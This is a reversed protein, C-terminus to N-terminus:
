ASEALGFDEEYGVAARCLGAHLDLMRERWARVPDDGQPLLPYASTCRPWMFTGMVIYDAYTPAEGSLFPQAKLTARLPTLIAEWAPREGARNDRIEEITKGFRGQRTERFYDRDVPDVNQFVDWLIQRAIGGLLVGDAYANVFKALGQGTEGGFLSPRDPYADELYCAIAWSDPVTKDGDVLIPTRGQGSFAIKDKETFKVPVIEDPALGKHALALKARWAYPSFRIDKAGQLEYLTIAM